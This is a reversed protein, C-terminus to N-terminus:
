FEEEVIRYEGDRLIKMVGRDKRYDDALRECGTLVLVALPLLAALTRM